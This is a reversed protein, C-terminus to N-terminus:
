HKVGQIDVFGNEQPINSCNDSRKSVQFYWEQSEAFVCGELQVFEMDSHKAAQFFFEHIDASHGGELFASSM